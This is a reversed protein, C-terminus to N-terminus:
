ILSGKNQRLRDLLSTVANPDFIQNRPISVRKSSTNPTPDGELFIWYCCHRLELCNETCVLWED